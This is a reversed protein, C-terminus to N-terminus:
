FMHLIIDYNHGCKSKGVKQGLKGTFKNYINVLM